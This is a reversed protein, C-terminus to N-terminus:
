IGTVITHLNKCVLMLASPPGSAEDIIILFIQQLLEFPLRTIPAIFHVLCTYDDRTERSRHWLDRTLADRHLSTLIHLITSSDESASPVEEGRAWAAALALAEAGAARVEAAVGEEAEAPTEAALWQELGWAKAWAEEWEAKVNVREAKAEGEVRIDRCTEGEMAVVTKTQPLVQWWHLRSSARSGFEM